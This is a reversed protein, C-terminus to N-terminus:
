AGLTVQVTSAIFTRITPHRLLTCLLAEQTRVKLKGREVKCVHYKTVGLLKAAVEQTLHLEHRWDRFEQSTM